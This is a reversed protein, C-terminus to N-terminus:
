LRRKRSMSLVVFYQIDVSRRRGDTPEYHTCMLTTESTIAFREYESVVIEVRIEPTYCRPTTNIAIKLRWENKNAGYYHQYIQTIGRVSQINHFLSNDM